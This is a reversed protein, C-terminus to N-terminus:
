VYPVDLRRVGGHCDGAPLMRIALGWHVARLQRNSARNRSALAAPRTVQRV